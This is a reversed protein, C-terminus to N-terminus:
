WLEFDSDPVCRTVQARWDYEPGFWLEYETGLVPKGASRKTWWCDLGPPASVAQFVRDLPARIPLDLYVDPM